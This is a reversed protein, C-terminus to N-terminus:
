LSKVFAELGDMGGDITKMGCAYSLRVFGEAGFPAGPVVAVGQSELLREAFSVSDMNFASIDPLMYFAGSPKVCAVGPIACLREYLHQRREDFAQRMTQVCDQSGTLAAIAGYQAFTVAGSTSHSQLSTAADVLARPGALYGLRWGTMSYAKSFGNVTITLARAADSFSAPSAHEANEYVLKEYIEDAIIYIGREVAVEVLAELEGRTYVIGIPNSPSNLIVAKTRPTIAARFQEPTMKFGAEATCPVEVTVGGAVRVMEPYSLWYPAPLVVEDGERCLAAIANYLSHKAGLSVLVQAPECAV